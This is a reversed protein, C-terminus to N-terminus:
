ENNDKFGVALIQCYPNAPKAVVSVEYVKINTFIKM